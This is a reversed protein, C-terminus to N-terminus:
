LFVAIESHAGLACQDVSVAILVSDLDLARQKLVVVHHPVVGPGIGVAVDDFGETGHHDFLGTEQVVKDAGGVDDNKAVGEVLVEVKNAVAAPGQTGKGRDELGDVLEVGKGGPANRRRRNGAVSVDRGAGRERGRLPRRFRWTGRVGGTGGGGDGIRGRDRRYRGPHGRHRGRTNRGFLPRGPRRRFRRRFLREIKEPRRNQERLRGGRRRHSGRQRQTTEANNQRHGRKHRHQRRAQNELLSLVSHRAVVVVVLGFCTDVSWDRAYCVSRAAPNVRARTHTDHAPPM